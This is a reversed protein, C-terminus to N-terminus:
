AAGAATKRLCTAKTWWERRDSTRQIQYSLGQAAMPRWAIIEVEQGDVLAIGPLSGPKEGFPVFDGVLAGDSPLDLFVRRGVAVILQNGSPTVTKPTWSNNYAM